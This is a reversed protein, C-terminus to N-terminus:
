GISFKRFNSLLTSNSSNETQEGRPWARGKGGGKGIARDIGTCKYQRGMIRSTLRGSQLQKFLRLVGARSGGRLSETGDQRLTATQGALEWVGEVSNSKSQGKRTGSLFVARNM